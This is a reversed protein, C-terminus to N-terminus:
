AEFDFFGAMVDVDQRSKKPNFIVIALMHFLYFKFWM